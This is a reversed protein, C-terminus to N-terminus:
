GIICLVIWPVICFIIVLLKYIGLFCYLILDFSPKSINFWRSHIKHAWDAAAIILIFILMMLTFNIISCWMFFATLLEINM